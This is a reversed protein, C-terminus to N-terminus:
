PTQVTWWGAAFSYNYENWYAAHFADVPITQIPRGSTTPGYVTAPGAVVKLQYVGNFGWVDGNQDPPISIEIGNVGSCGNDWQYCTFHEAHDYCDAVITFEGGIVFDGNSLARGHRVVGNVGNGTGGCATACEYATNASRDIYFINNCGSLNTIFTPNPPPTEIVVNDFSGGQLFDPIGTGM